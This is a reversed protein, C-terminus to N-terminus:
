DGLEAQCIVGSYRISERDFFVEVCPKFIEPGSEGFHGVQPHQLELCPANRMEVNPEVEGGIEGSKPIDEGFGPVAYGFRSVLLVERKMVM